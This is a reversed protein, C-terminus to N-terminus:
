FVCSYFKRKSGDCRTTKLGCIRRALANLESGPFALQLWKFMCSLSRTEAHVLAAVESMVGM